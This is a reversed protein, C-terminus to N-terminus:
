SPIGQGRILRGAARRSMSALRGVLAVREGELAPEGALDEGASSRGVEHAVAM